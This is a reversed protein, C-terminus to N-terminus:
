SLLQIAATRDAEYSTTRTHGKGVNPRGPVAKAFM